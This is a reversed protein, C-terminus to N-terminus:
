SPQRFQVVPADIRCRRPWTGVKGKRLWIQGLASKNMHNASGTAVVMDRQSTIRAPLNADGPTKRGTICLLGLKPEEQAELTCLTSRTNPTM